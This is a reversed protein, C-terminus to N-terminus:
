GSDNAAADVPRRQRLRHPQSRVLSDDQRLRHAVRIPSRAGSRSGERHEEGAIPAPEPEPERDSENGPDPDTVLTNQALAAFLGEAQEEVSIKDWLYRDYAEFMNFRSSASWEGRANIKAMLAVAAIVNGASPQVEDVHEIIRGLAVLVNHRRHEFLNRAHAHRYITTHSRLGFMRAIERPSTWDVFAQEIEIRRPHRCITCKGRHLHPDPGALPGDPSSKQRAARPM